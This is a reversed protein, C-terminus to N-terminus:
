IQSLLSIDDKMQLEINEKISTLATHRLETKDVGGLFISRPKSVRAESVYTKIITSNKSLEM